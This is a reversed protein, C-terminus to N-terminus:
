KKVGNTVYNELTTIVTSPKDKESISSESFGRSTLKAIYEADAQATLVFIFLLSFRNCFIESFKCMKSASSFSNMRKGIFIEIQYIHFLCKANKM